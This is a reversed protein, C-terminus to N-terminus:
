HHGMCNLNQSLPSFTNSCVTYYSCITSNYLCYVFLIGDKENEEHLFIRLHQTFFLSVVSLPFGYANLNVYVTKIIQLRM